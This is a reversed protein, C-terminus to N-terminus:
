FRHIWRQNAQLDEESQREKKWDGQKKRCQLGRKWKIKFFDFPDMKQKKNHKSVNGDPAEVDKPSANSCAVSM